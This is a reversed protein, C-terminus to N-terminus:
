KNIHLSSQILFFLTLFVLGPNLSFFIFSSFHFVLFFLFFVIAFFMWGISFFVISPTLKKFLSSLSYFGKYFGFPGFYELIGKDIYKNTTMYSVDLLNLFINNYVLDFYAAHFFFSSIKSWLVFLRNTLSFTFGKDYLFDFSLIGFLAISSGAVSVILPLNKVLPDM